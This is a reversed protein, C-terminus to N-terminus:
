GWQESSSVPDDLSCLEGLILCSTILPIQILNQM